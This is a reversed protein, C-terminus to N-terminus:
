DTVCRIDLSSLTMDYERPWAQSLAEHVVTAPDDVDPSDGVMRSCITALDEGHEASVWELFSTTTVKM